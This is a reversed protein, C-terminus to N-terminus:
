EHCYRRRRVTYIAGTILMRLLVTMPTASLRDASGGIGCEIRENCSRTRHLRQPNGLQRRGGAFVPVSLRRQEAGFPAGRRVFWGARLGVSSAAAAAAGGFRRRERAKIM